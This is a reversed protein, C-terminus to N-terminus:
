EEAKPIWSSKRTPKQEDGVVEYIKLTILSKKNAKIYAKVDKCSTLNTEHEGEKDTYVSLYNKLAKGGDMRKPAVLGEPIQKKSKAEKKPKAEAEEKPKAEKKVPAETLLVRFLYKKEPKYYFQRYKSKTAIEVLYFGNLECDKLTEEELEKPIKVLDKNKGYVEIGHISLINTLTATLNTAM